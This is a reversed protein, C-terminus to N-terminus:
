IVIGGGLVKDLEKIGTLYRQEKKSEVNLISVLKSEKGEGQPFNYKKSKVNVVQEEVLSNWSNCEPCKGLWRATEYGCNQCIYKFKDRM